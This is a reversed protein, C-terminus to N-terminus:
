YKISSNLAAAREAAEEDERQIRRACTRITEALNLMEAKTRSMEGRLTVLKALFAESAEGQWVSRCDQEMQELKQIQNGLQDAKDSIENAQSMVKSYNIRFKM